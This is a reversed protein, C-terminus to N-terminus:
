KASALKDGAQMPKYPGKQMMLMHLVAANKMIKGYTAREHADGNVLKKLAPLSSIASPISFENILVRNGNALQHETGGRVAVKSLLNANEFTSSASTILVQDGARLSIEQGEVLVSVDGNNGDHLSLVMVDRGNNVVFAASGRAVHVRAVGAQAAYDDSQPALLVNSAPIARDALQLMPQVFAVPKLNSSATALQRKNKKRKLPDNDDDTQESTVPAPGDPGNLGDSGDAGNAGNPNGSGGLGGDGGDGGSGGGRGVTTISGSGPGAVTVVIAGGAGGNGANGGRGGNGGNLIGGAGGDGGDGGNGANGGIAFATNVTNSSTVSAANTTKHNISGARGGPDGIGGAGGIGGRRGGSGGLGGEGGTSSDGGRVDIFSVAISANLGSATM